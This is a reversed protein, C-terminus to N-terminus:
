RTSDDVRHAFIETLWLPEGRADAIEDFLDALSATWRRQIESASTTASAAAFGDRARMRCVVIEGHRWIQYDYLGAEDILALVEPWVARHREDYVPGMGPKLRYLYLFAEGPGPEHRSM